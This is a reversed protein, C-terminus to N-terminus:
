RRRMEIRVIQPRRPAIRPRGARSPLRLELGVLAAAAKVADTVTQREKGVDRAIEAFSEQRLQYRALWVLHETGTRKSPVAAARARAAVEIRALETRVVRRLEGMIRAQAATRTERQPDWRQPPLALDRELGLDESLLLPSIAFPEALGLEDSPLLPLARWRHLTYGAVGLGWAREAAHRLLAQESARDPGSPDFGAPFGWRRVWAGTPGTGDLLDTMFALFLHQTGAAWLEPLDAEAPGGRAEWMAAYADLPAGALSVLVAPEVAGALRLFVQRAQVRASLADAEVYAGPALHLPGSADLRCPRAALRRRLEARKAEWTPFTPTEGM